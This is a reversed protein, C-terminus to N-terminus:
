SDGSANTEGSKFPVLVLDAFLVASLLVALAGYRHISIMSRQAEFTFVPLMSGLATAIQVSGFFAFAWFAAKGLTRRSLSKFVPCAFGEFSATGAGNFGYDRARWFMMAALNIAFLGGSGVHVLLPLGFIGRPSFFAFAFGGAAQWIFSASLAIFIWRLPGPYRAATWAKLATWGRALAEKSRLERSRRKLWALYAPRSFAPEKEGPAPATAARFRLSSQRLFLGAVSLITLAIFVAM